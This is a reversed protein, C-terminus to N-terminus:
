IILGDVAYGLFKRFISGLVRYLMNPLAKLKYEGHQKSQFAIALAMLLTYVM